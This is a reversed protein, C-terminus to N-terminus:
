RFYLIVYGGMGDQGRGIKEDTDNYDNSWAGGGGGTAGPAYNQIYNSIKDTIDKINLTRYLKVPEFNDSNCKYEKNGIKVNVGSFGGCPIGRSGALASIKPNVGGNGGSLKQTNIDTTEQAKLGKLSAIDETTKPYVEDEDKLLLRTEPTIIDNLTINQINGSQAFKNLLPNALVANLAPKGGIVEYKKGNSFEIFSNGGETGSSDPFGGSGAKGAQIKIKDGTKVQINKIYLFSGANGGSGGVGPYIHKYYVEVRGGNGGTGTTCVPNGDSGTECVGGNGGAGYKGSGSWVSAGGIIGNAPNGKRYSIVGPIDGCALSANHNIYDNNTMDRTWCNELYIPKGENGNATSSAAAGSYGAYVTIAYAYNGKSDYIGGWNEYGPRIGSAGKVGSKGGNQAHFKITAEGSETAFKIVKRPVELELYSGSAAGGGAFYAYEAGRSCRVSAFDVYAGIASLDCLWNKHLNGGSLSLGWFGSGGECGGSQTSSWVFYPFSGIRPCYPTYGNESDCMSLGTTATSRAFSATWKAQQTYTPLVWKDITESMAASFDKCASVAGAHSCVPISAATFSGQTYDSCGSSAKQNYRTICLKNASDYATLPTSASGKHGTTDTKGLGYNKCVDISPEFITNYNGGGGGAGAGSIKFKLASTNKGIRVNKDSTLFTSSTGDCANDNGSVFDLLKWEENAEVSSIAGGGGAGGSVIIASVFSADNPVICEKSIDENSDNVLVCPPIEAASGLNLNINTDNMRKTIVPALATLFLSAVLLTMLMEVLSFAPKHKM